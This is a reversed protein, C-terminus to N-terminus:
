EYGHGKREREPFICETMIYQVVSKQFNCYAEFFKEKNEPKKLFSNVFDYM